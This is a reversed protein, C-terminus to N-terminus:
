FISGSQQNVAFALEPNSFRASPLINLPPYNLENLPAFMMRQEYPQSMFYPFKDALRERLDGARAGMLVLPAKVAYPLVPEGIQVSGFCRKYFSSSDERVCNMVYDAKYYEGAMAVVRLTLFPIARFQWIKHPNSAFRSPDIYTLGQDLVAGAEKPFYELSPGTRNDPTVVCIKITSVLEEDIYVGIVSSDQGYDDDEMLTGFKDPDIFASNVYSIDRLKEVEALDEASLIRRYEVREMLSLISSSFTRRSQGWDMANM